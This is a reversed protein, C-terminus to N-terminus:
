HGRSRNLHVQSILSFYEIRESPPSGSSRWALERVGRRGSSCRNGPVFEKSALEAPEAVTGPHELRCPCARCGSSQGGATRPRCATFPGARIGGTCHDRDVDFTLLEPMWIFVGAAIAQSICVFGISGWPAERIDDLFFRSHAATVANEVTSHM